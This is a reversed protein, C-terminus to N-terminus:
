FIFIIFYRSSSSHSGSGGFSSSSLAKRNYLILVKPNKNLNSQFLFHKVNFLSICANVVDRDYLIDMGAKIEILAKDVGTAPGYSKHSSMAEVIDAVAIIKVELM